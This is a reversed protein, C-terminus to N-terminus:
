PNWRAQSTQGSRATQVPASRRPALNGNGPNARSPPRVSPGMAVPGPRTAVRGGQVPPTVRPNRRPANTPGWSFNCRVLRHRVAFARNNNLIVIQVPQSYGYPSYYGYPPDLVPEPYIGVSDAPNQNAVYGEVGPQDYGDSSQANGDGTDGYDSATLGPDYTQVTAVPYQPPAQAVPLDDAPYNVPARRRPQPPQYIPSVNAFSADATEETEAVARPKMGPIGAFAIWILVAILLGLEFAIVKSITTPGTEM